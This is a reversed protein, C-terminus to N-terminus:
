YGNRPKEEQAKAELLSKNGTKVVELKPVPTQGTVEPRISKLLTQQNETREAKKENHTHSHHNGLERGTLGSVLLKRPEDQVKETGSRSDVM